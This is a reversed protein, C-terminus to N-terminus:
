EPPQRYRVSYRRSEAYDPPQEQVEQDAEQTNGTAPELTEIGTTPPYVVSVEEEPSENGLSAACQRIHDIHGKWMQGNGVKVVYSLPECKGEDVGPM